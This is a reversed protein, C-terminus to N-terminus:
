GFLIETQAHSISQWIVDVNLLLEDIEATGFLIDSDSFYSTNSFIPLNRWHGNEAVVVSLIREPWPENPMM